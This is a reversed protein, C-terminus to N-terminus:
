EFERLKEVQDVFADAARSEDKSGATANFLRKISLILARIAAREEPKFTRHEAM